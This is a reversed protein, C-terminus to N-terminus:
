RRSAIRSVFRKMKVLFGPCGKLSFRYRWNRRCEAGGQNRDGKHAMETFGCYQCYDESVEARM